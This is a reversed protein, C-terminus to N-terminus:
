LLEAREDAAIKECQTSDANAAIVISGNGRCAAILVRCDRSLSGPQLLLRTASPPAAAFAESHTLRHSDLDLALSGPSPPDFSEFYDSHGLVEANYDIFGVPEEAFRLGMPRLSLAVRTEEEADLSPGVVAISAEHDALVVGVNWAALVWVLSEWHTPLDLRLRSGLEVDLSEVLFNSTKAVWNATTTASLEIREGTSSDYYTIFPQDPAEVGRLLQDLTSM